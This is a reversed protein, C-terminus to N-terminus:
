DLLLVSNFVINVSYSTISATFNMLVSAEYTGFQLGSFYLQCRFRFGFYTTYQIDMSSQALLTGSLIFSNLTM